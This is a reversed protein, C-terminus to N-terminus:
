DNMKVGHVIDIFDKVKNNDKIGVKSELKSSADVAYPHVLEILECVNKSDLGGSVFVKKNKLIDIKNILSWNFIKGTGGNADESYTDFFIMGIKNYQEIKSFSDKDKVHFVKIVDLGRKIFYNCFAPTEEGHFQVIRLRAYSCIEEVHKKKANLFVGVYNNFDPTEKMIRAATEKIIKRPSPAFIFGLYDVGCSIAFRANDVNTIGCIKVKTM